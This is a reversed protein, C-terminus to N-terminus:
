KPCNKIVETKEGALHLPCYKTSNSDSYSRFSQRLIFLSMNITIVKVHLCRNVAFEFNGHM